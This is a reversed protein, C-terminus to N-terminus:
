ALSPASYLSMTPNVCGKTDTVRYASLMNHWSWSL